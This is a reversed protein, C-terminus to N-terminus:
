LRSGRIAFAGALAILLLLAALPGTGLTPIGSPGVVTLSATNSTTGDGTELAFVADTTNDKQGPTTGRVHVSFSCPIGPPLLAGSLSVTSGGPAATILGCTGSIGNPTAVVLGTPLNDTFGIGSLTATGNPNDITFTLSTEGGLPISAAGFEKAVTPPFGVHLTATASNGTGGNTSTVNGSANLFTGAAPETVNVAVTCSSDVAVVGGTLSVTNSGPVATATGGCTDTLGNPTAILLGSPFTDIFAVGLESSANAPPNTITFTLTSVGNLDIRVPNFAKSISPPANVSSGAIATATPLALAVLVGIALWSRMRRRSIAAPEIELLAAARTGGPAAPRKM